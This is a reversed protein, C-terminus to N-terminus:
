GAKRAKSAADTGLMLTCAVAELTREETAGAKSPEQREANPPVIYRPNLARM